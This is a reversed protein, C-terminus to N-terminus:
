FPLLSVIYIRLIFRCMYQFKKKSMKMKMHKFLFLKFYAKAIKEVNPNHLSSSTDIISRIRNSM